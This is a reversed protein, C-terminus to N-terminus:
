KGDEKAKQYEAYRQKRATVSQVIYGKWLTETIISMDMGNKTCETKFLDKINQQTVILTKTKAMTYILKHIQVFIAFIYSM